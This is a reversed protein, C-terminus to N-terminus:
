GGQVPVILAVEDGDCLAHTADVYDHNVALRFAMRDLRGNALACVRTEVDGARSGPPMRLITEDCDLVHRVHSFFRVRIQM